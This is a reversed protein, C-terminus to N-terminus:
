VPSSCVQAKPLVDGQLVPADESSQQHLVQAEDQPSSTSSSVETASGGPAEMVEQLLALM